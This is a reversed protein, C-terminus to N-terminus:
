RSAGRWRPLRPAAIRTAAAASAAATSVLPWVVRPVRVRDAAGGAQLERERDRADVRARRAVARQDRDVGLALLSGTGRVRDEGEAALAVPEAVLQECRASARM